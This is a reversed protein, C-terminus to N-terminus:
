SFFNYKKYQLKNRKMYEYLEEFMSNYDAVPILKQNDVLSRDINNIYTKIYFIDIFM